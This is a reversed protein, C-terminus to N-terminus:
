FILLFAPKQDRMEKSLHKTQNHILKSKKNKEQTFCTNAHIITAKARIKQIIESTIRKSTNQQKIVGSRLFNSSFRLCLRKSVM